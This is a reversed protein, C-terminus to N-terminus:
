NLYNDLTVPNEGDLIKQPNTNMLIRAGDVGILKILAKSGEGISAKVDKARHCDSAVIGVYGDLLLKIAAKKHDKHYMGAISGLNVQLVYGADILNELKEPYKYLYDFREVHALVIRYGCKRINFLLDMLRQPEGWYPTEILLWNSAGLPVVESNKCTQLLYEDIYHEAGGVHKLTINNADLLRSLRQNLESQVHADNVWNKDRRLHSTCAVVEVGHDVLAKALDLSEDTDKPGDDVGYHLHCHLDIM